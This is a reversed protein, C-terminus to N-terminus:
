NLGIRNSNFIQGFNLNKVQKLYMERLNKGHKLFILRYNRLFFIEWFSSFNLLENSINVIVYVDPM